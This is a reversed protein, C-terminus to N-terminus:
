FNNINYYNFIVQARQILSTCYIIMNIVQKDNIRKAHLLPLQNFLDCPADARNGLNNLVKILDVRGLTVAYYMPTGFGMPDCYKNLDVGRLNLYRLMDPRDHYVALFPLTLGLDDPENLQEVTLLDFLDTRNLKIDQEIATNASVIIECLRAGSEIGWSKSSATHIPNEAM